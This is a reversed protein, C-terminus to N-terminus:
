VPPQEHAMHANPPEDEATVGYDMEKMQGCLAREIRRADAPAVVGVWRKATPAAIQKFLLPDPLVAPPVEWQSIRLAEPDFTEQMFACIRKLERSPDSVFDEYKVRLIRGPFANEYYALRRLSYGYEGVFGDIDWYHGYAPDRKSRGVSSAFTDVPHRILWAIRASPFTWLIKHVHLYHHPTKEVLRASGRVELAYGFYREIVRRRASAQWRSQVQSNDADLVVQVATGDFAEFDIEFSEKDAMLAIQEIDERVARLFAEYIDVRNCLYGLLRRYHPNPPTFSVEDQFILTEWM